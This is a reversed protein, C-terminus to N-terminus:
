PTYRRSGPPLTPHVGQSIHDMVRRNLEFLRHIYSVRVDDAPRQVQWTAFVEMLEHAEALM